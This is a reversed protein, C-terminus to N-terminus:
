TTIRRAVADHARAVLQRAEACQSEARALRESGYLGDKLSAANIRVNLLAAECAAALCHAGSAADSVLNANVDPLADVAIRLALLAHEVTEAPVDLAGRLGAQIAATRAAKEAETAKPLKYADTVADYSRADLDVLELGRARHRELDEVRRAMASEVAAFKEGSTFRCAMAALASGSAVLAGAM